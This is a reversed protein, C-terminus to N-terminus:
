DRVEIPTFSYDINDISVRPTLFGGVSSFGDSAIFVTYSQANGNTNLTTNSQGSPITGNTISFDVSSGLPLVQKNIPGGITFTISTDGMTTDYVSPYAAGTCTTEPTTIDEDCELVGNVAVALIAPTEEALVLEISRFINIADVPDCLTTHVCGKGNYAVSAGDHMFNSNFDVNIEGPDFTDNANDDRFAETIDFGLGLFGDGDSFVGNFDLDIFSEEGEVFALITTVGPRGFDPGPLSNTQPSGSHWDVSCGGNTTTCNADINGLETRFSVITGDAILNSFRDGLLVSISVTKNIKNWALPNLETAGLSMNNQAPPGTAIAITGSVTQIVPNSILTATVRVNTAVSGSQITTSVIGSGDSTVTTDSITIGGIISNLSFMVDEGPVPLGLGDKVTFTVVSTEPLGTATGTGALAILSPNNSTHEILGVTSSAVTINGTATLTTGNLAATITDSGICGQAVYNTTAVGNNTLFTANSFTALGATVCPSSFTVTNNSTVLAGTEDALEVNIIATGGASITSPAVILAGDTFVPNLTGITAGIRVTPTTATTGTGGTTPDIATSTGLLDDGTCATIGIVASLLALQSFKRILNHAYM